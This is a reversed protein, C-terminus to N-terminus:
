RHGEPGNPMTRPAPEPQLQGRNRRCDARAIARTRDGFAATLLVHAARAPTVHPVDRGRVRAPRAPARARSRRRRIRHFSERRALARRTDGDDDLRRPHRDDRLVARGPREGEVAYRVARGDPDEVELVLHGDFPAYTRAGLLAGPDLPLLWLGDNVYDIRVRRPDTLRHRIPEDVAANTATVGVVLDIGLLYQWLASRTEGSVAQIDYAFVRRESHGASWGEKVEYAVFGDATGSADEHVAVFLAKEPTGDEWFVEPWWYSPRSVMGPRLKRIEDYLSPLIKEAADREILRVRGRDDLPSAFRAHVRDISLGVRWTAIGYGFRGYIASESATLIAAPENRSRADDHLAGIMKTLIGRRRHTPLVGVWSVASSPVCAGGPLTMEFSYARSAGVIAGDEFAVRTRDLEAEAWTRSAEKPHPPNGFARADARILDDVEDPGIARIELAM